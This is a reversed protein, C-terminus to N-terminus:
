LSFNGYCCLRHLTDHLFPSIFWIIEYAAFIFSQLSLLPQPMAHALKHSGERHWHCQKLSKTWKSSLLTNGAMKISNLSITTIQPTIVLSVAKWDRKWKLKELFNFVGTESKWWWLEVCAWHGCVCQEWPRLWSHWGTPASWFYNSPLPSYGRFPWPQPDSLHPNLGGAGSASRPDQWRLSAGEARLRTDQDYCLTGVGQPEWSNFPVTQNLTLIWHM